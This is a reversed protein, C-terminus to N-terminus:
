PGAPFHLSILASDLFLYRALSSGLKSLDGFEELSTKGKGSLSSLYLNVDASDLLRWDRSPM